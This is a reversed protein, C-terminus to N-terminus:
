LAEIRSPVTGRRAAELHNHWQDMSGAKAYADLTVVIPNVDRDFGIITLWDALVPTGDGPLEGSLDKLQEWKATSWAGGFSAYRDYTPTMCASRFGSLHLYLLVHSSTSRKTKHRDHLLQSLALHHMFAPDYRLMDIPFNSYADIPRINQATTKWLKYKIKM